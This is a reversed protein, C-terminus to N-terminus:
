RGDTSADADVDEDANVVSADPDANEGSTVVVLVLGFLAATLAGGFALVAPATGVVNAVFATAGVGSPVSFLLAYGLEERTPRRM